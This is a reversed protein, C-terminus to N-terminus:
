NGLAKALDKIALDIRARLRQVQSVSEEISETTFGILETFAGMLHENGLIEQLQARVAVISEEAIHLHFIPNDLSESVQLLRHAEESITM